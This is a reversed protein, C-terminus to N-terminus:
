CQLNISCLVGFGIGFGSTSNLCSLLHFHEFPNSCGCCDRRCIMQKKKYLSRPHLAFQDQQCSGPEKRVKLVGNYGSFSNSSMFHQEIVNAIGNQVTYEKRNKTKKRYETEWRSCSARRWGWTCWSNGLSVFWRADDSPNSYKGKKRLTGSPLRVQNGIERSIQSTPLGDGM